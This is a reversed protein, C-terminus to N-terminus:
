AKAAFAEGADRTSRRAAICRKVIDRVPPWDIPGLLAELRSVDPARERVDRQGPFVEAYPVFSTPVTAGTEALVIEALERIRTSVPNGVNWVNAGPRWAAEREVLRLLTTVFTGVDGFSRTQEGDDYITISRGDLAQDVFRPMVMGYRGTQGPGVVNFPRVVLIRRGAAAARAGIREIEWKGAAYGPRGGDYRLAASGDSVASEALPGGAGDGYVASSSFLVVPAARSNALL